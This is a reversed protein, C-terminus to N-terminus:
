NYEDRELEDDLDAQCWGGTGFQRNLNAVARDYPDISLKVLDNEVHPLPPLAPLRYQSYSEFVKYTGDKNILYYGRDKPNTYSIDKAYIRLTGNKTWMKFEWDQYDASKSLGELAIGLQSLTSPNGIQAKQPAPAEPEDEEDAPRSLIEKASDIWELLTAENAISLSIYPSIGGKAEIEARLKKVEAKLEKKSLSITTM